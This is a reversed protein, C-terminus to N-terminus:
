ARSPNDARWAAWDEPTDLYRRANQGPLPILAIEPEQAVIERGGSDGTLAALAPFLDSRFVIPHGPKGDATMGRWIRTKSTLDVARLVTRVDELTLDPLDALLICVAPSDAPLLAIGRRLSANMGERADPVPCLTVGQGVVADHRPHPAAPLAVIVPGDTAARALRVQRAILPLGDVRQMLKDDGGM